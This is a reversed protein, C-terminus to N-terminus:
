NESELTEVKEKIAKYNATDGIASYINMLTRAADINKPQTELASVLYPVASKYVDQRKMKLEDYKRDDAASSGLNNMEEVIAKEQELLLAAM